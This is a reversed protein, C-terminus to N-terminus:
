ICPRMASIHQQAPQHAPKVNSQIVTDDGEKVYAVHKQASPPRTEYHEAHKIGDGEKVHM